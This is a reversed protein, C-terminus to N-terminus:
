SHDRDEMHRAVSRLVRLDDELGLFSLSDPSADRDMVFYLVAAQILRQDDEPADAFHALLQYAERALSRATTLDLFETDDQAAELDALHRGVQDGLVEASQLDLGLLSTFLHRAEAPFGDLRAALPDAM